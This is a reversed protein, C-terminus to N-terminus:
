QVTGLGRLPCNPAPSYTDAIVIDRSITSLGMCWVTNAFHRGGVRLVRSLHGWIDEDRETARLRRLTANRTEDSAVGVNQKGCFIKRAIFVGSFQVADM